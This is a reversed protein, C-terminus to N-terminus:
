FSVTFSEDDISTVRCHPYTAVTGLEDDVLDVTFTMNMTVDPYVDKHVTFSEDDKLSKAVDCWANKDDQELSDFGDVECGQSSLALVYKAYLEKGTM